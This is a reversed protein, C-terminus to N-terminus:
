VVLKSQLTKTKMILNPIKTLFSVELLLVRLSTIVTVTLNSDETWVTSTNKVPKMVLVIPIVLIMEIVSVLQILLYVVMLRSTLTKSNTVINLNSIMLLSITILRMKLTMITSIVSKNNKIVPLVNM